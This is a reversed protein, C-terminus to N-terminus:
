AIDAAEKMPKGVVLAKKWAKLEEDYHFSSNRTLV